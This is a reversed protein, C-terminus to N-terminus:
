WRVRVPGGNGGHHRLEPGQGVHDGNGTGEGGRARVLHGSVM